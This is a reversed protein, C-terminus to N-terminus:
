EHMHYINRPCRIYKGFVKNAVCYHVLGVLDRGHHLYLDLLRSQLHGLSVCIHLPCLIYVFNCPMNQLQTYSPITLVCHSYSETVVM